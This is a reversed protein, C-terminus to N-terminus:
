ILFFVTVGFKECSFCSELALILVCFVGFCSELIVFGGVFFGIILTKAWSNLSLLLFESISSFVVVWILNFRSDAAWNTFRTLFM